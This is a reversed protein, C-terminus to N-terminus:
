VNWNIKQIFRSKGDESVLNVIIEGEVGAEKEIIEKIYLIKTNIDKEDGFRVTKGETEMHLIYNNKDSIDIKTILSEIENSNASEMIKLVTELKILDEEVLRNGPKISEAETLIGIIVPKDIKIDTIELMFGQNNIYAYGNAYELMYTAQREKIDIEIISPVKRKVIVNEVYPNQKIKNIINNKNIKYINEGIKIESLSILQENSIVANGNIKIETLNFIPSLMFCIIATFIACIIFIYKFMKFNAKKKEKPKNIRSKVQEKKITSSKNTQKKSNKKGTKNYNKKKTEPIKTVGIVIEDDFNFRESSTKNKQNNNNKKKVQGSKKNMYTNNKVNSNKKSVSKKDKDNQNKLYYLNVSGERAKRGM